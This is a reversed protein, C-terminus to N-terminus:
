VVRYGYFDFARRMRARQDPAYLLGDNLLYGLHRHTGTMAVAGVMELRVTTAPKPLFM